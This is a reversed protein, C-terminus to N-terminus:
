GRPYNLNFAIGIGTLVVLYMWAIQPLEWFLLGLFIVVPWIINTICALRTWLQVREWATECYAMFSGISLAIIGVSLARFSQPVVNSLCGTLNGWWIPVLLFTLGFTAMLFAHALFTRRLKIDVNATRM